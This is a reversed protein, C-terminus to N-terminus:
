SKRSKHFSSARSRKTFSFRKPRTAYPVDLAKQLDASSDVYVHCIGDGHGLVPIRSHETIYRVLEYSGRPIILDVDRDLALLELVDARTQLLQVSDTPVESFKELAARWIAVLTENTHAAESGGKLIIANGSKLALSALQPVVEPRSEFVVGVVGLPCSERILTLNDDLETSMLTRGLPDALRAVERVRMAMEAIGQETVRLRKLMASSM